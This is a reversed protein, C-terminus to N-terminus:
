SPTIRKAILVVFSTLIAAIFFTIKRLGLLNSSSLQYSMAHQQYEKANLESDMLTRDSLFSENKLCHFRMIVRM